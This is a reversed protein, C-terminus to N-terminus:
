MAKEHICYFHGGQRLRNVKIATRESKSASFRAFEVDQCKHMPFNLITWKVGIRQKVHTVWRVFRPDSIGAGTDYNEAAYATMFEEQALEYKQGVELPNINSVIIPDKRQLLHQLKVLGFTITLLAITM